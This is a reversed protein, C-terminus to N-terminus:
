AAKKRQQARVQAWRARQAQAIKRRSAISLTRKSPTASVEKGASETGKRVKAWRARQARAMRRRAAASLIRQPGASKRVSASTTRGILGEIASIAEDLKAVHLQAQIREERLQQLANTLNTM